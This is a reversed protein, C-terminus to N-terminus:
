SPLPSMMVYAAIFVCQVKLQNSHFLHCNGSHFIKRRNRRANHHSGNQGIHILSLEELIAGFSLSSLHGSTSAGGGPKGYGPPRYVSHDSVYFLGM